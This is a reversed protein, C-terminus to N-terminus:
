EILNQLPDDIGLIEDVIFPEGYDCGILNGYYKFRNIMMDRFRKSGIVTREESEEGVYFQTSYAEIAELKQDFQKTIDTVFSPTHDRFELHFLTRLPRWPSHDSPFNGAGSFFSVARALQYVATHDPHRCPGLPAILIKVRYERIVDVILKRADHTDELGSDPLGLNERFALQLVENAAQTERDRDQVSGSTAAEGRTLDLVGVNYGKERMKILTGGCYLEADDPHAALLLYDLKM